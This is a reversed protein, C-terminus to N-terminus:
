HGYHRVPNGKAKEIKGAQQRFPGALSSVLGFGFFRWHGFGPPKKKGLHFVMVM